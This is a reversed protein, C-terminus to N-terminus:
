PRRRRTRQLLSATGMLLIALGTPEPVAAPPPPPPGQEYGGDALAAVLDSSNTRRDGNFDGQTWVSDAGTEYTGSALVQVLDSSNFEKSLDADGIWSGFLSKVWVGIDAENVQSDGNLDYGLPNTGSAVQVTLDDIDAADLVGNGSFDGPAAGLSLVKSLGQDRILALDDESLASRFLGVDDIVGLVPQSNDLRDGIALPADNLDGPGFEQEAELEGDVYVHLFEGDYSGALFHWEDDYVSTFSVTDSWQGGSTVEAVLNGAPNLDLSYNQFGNAPDKVVIIAWENTLPPNLRAWATITWTELTLEESAPVEVRSGPEGSFELANSFKGDSTWDVDGVISGDHGGVSDSTVDGQGEDFLWVSVVEDKLAAQAPVACAGILMLSIWLWFRGTFM